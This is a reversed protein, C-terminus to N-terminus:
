PREKPGVYGPPGYVQALPCDTPLCPDNELNKLPDVCWPAVKHRVPYVRCLKTKLDLFQCPVKSFRLEGTEGVEKFYCCRGCKNCLTEPTIKVPGGAQCTIVTVLAHVTTTKQAGGTVTAVVVAVISKWM